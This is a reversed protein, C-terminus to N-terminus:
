GHAAPTCVVLAAGYRAHHTNSAQPVRRLYHCSRLSWRCWYSGQSRCFCCSTFTLRSAFVSMLGHIGQLNVDRTTPPLMKAVHTAYDDGNSIKRKLSGATPFHKPFDHTSRTAMTILPTSTHKVLSPVADGPLRQRHRSQSQVSKTSGNDPSWM